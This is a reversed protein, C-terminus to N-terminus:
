MRFLMATSNMMWWANLLATSEDSWFLLATPEEDV